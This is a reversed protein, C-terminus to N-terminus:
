PLPKEAGALRLMEVLRTPPREVPREPDELKDAHTPDFKEAV